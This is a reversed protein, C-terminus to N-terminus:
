SREREALSLPPRDAGAWVERIDRLPFIAAGCTCALAKLTCHSRVRVNQAICTMRIEQREGYVPAAALGEPGAPRSLLPRPMPWPRLWAPAALPAPRPLARPRPPFKDTMEGGCRSTFPAMDPSPTDIAVEADFARCDFATCDCTVIPDSAEFPPEPGGKTFTLTPPGTPM